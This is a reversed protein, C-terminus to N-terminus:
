VTLESISSTTSACPRLPNCEVTIGDILGAGPVNHNDLTLLPLDHASFTASSLTMALITAHGDQGFAFPEFQLTGNLGDGPHVAFLSDCNATPTCQVDTVTGQFAFNVQVGNVKSRGLVCLTSALAVTRAAAYFRSHRYLWRRGNM